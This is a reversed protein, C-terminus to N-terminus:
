CSWRCCGPDPRPAPIGVPQACLEDRTYGFLREAQGNVLAIRGDAGIIVMADPAAEFLGRFRDGSPEEEVLSEAISQKTMSSGGPHVMSVRDAGRGAVCSKGALAPLFTRSKRDHDCFGVTNGDAM